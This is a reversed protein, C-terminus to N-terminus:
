GRGREKVAHRVEDVDAKLGEIAAVPEAPAVRRFQSRGILALVGAVLFIAVTVVLSALWLPWVLDLAIIATAILAGVGYMAFVGAGSFLGVGIGAHRGKEALEAKALTLEDKVLRSLQESARQVLEATSQESLPRARGNLVDAM